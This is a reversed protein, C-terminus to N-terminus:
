GNDLRTRPQGGGVGNKQEIRIRFMFDGLFIAWEFCKHSFVKKTSYM